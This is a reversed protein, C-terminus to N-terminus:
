RPQFHFLQAGHAPLDLYLGQCQLDDGHREHREAGLRDEMRWVYRNLDLAQLPAYCQSRHGALNVAVLDFDPVHTQWEILVFHRWSENGAWAERPKLILAEGRGVSSDGLARLVAEYWQAIEPQAPEQPRRCAHIRGHVCAGELEGYHLLRMGPLGLSALSAAQHEALALRSAIRPEDHNEVFHASRDLFSRLNGLVHHQVGESDRAVLLDYLRKDYTYDFGLEQLRPELDWYVEALFLFDPHAAKITAVTEAWFEPPEEAPGGPWDQWTRQFVERLALMALDCRVGDCRQALDGLEGRLAAQVERRRHDLQATDRWPPFYPDKGHAVWVTGGDVPVPFTHEQRVTSHLYWEPHEALWRHDLGTHNPIFDLLLRLGHRHLQDRFVALGSDGGLREDVGYRSPAYPSGWLEAPAFGALREKGYQLVEPDEQAVTRSRAGVEWVSMLWIHSFGLQKWKELETDPVSQLTVRRDLRQALEDLWFRANVAYVMPQDM